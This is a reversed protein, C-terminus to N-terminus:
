QSNIGLESIGSIEWLMVSLLLVESSSYWFVMTTVNGGELLISKSYCRIDVCRKYEVVGCISSHQLKTTGRMM